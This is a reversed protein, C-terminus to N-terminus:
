QGRVGARHPLAVVMGALRAVLAMMLQDGFKERADGM